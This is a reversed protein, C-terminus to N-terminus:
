YNMEADLPKQYQTAARPADPTKAFRLDMLGYRTASIVDDMEKVIVGDKRHYLRFEEFWDHLHDFVKFRGTEMRTLMESVGAEVSVVSRSPNRPDVPFKANEPRMNVGERKYQMALQPGGATDNNGDHPWAVPIWAGRSKIASAHIPVPQESRRYCDTVYLTDSDRDWALWAAASPHTWGFDLGVIRPWHTPVKFAPVRVLSEEVPFILGSGLTPIGKTRADREHAPYSAIIAARQEATYHEADDLTMTTVSTGAPKQLLLRHMVKSMGLLPTLTLLVPGMTTNTRTMAETYIDLDPEEDLWVGDLTDAQWKTRGQQYSALQLVSVEGSIHRVPITAVADPTGQQRAIDAFVIADRPLMGTGWASETEPPGLLIRQVGKRTLEASESGATWRTARDFRLGNWWPPYRGTLHMAVEAGACWTKGVQNAAVLARERFSAGATHFAM